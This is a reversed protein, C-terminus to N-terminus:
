WEGRKVIQRKLNMVGRAIQDAEERTADPTFVLTGDTITRTFLPTALWRQQGNTEGFQTFVAYHRGRNATSYQELLKTGSDDFRVKLAFGGIADVVIANTVYREDLFPSKEVNVLVPMQRYVPVQASRGTSDANVEQHFRLTAVLGKAKPDSSQCGCWLLLSVSGAAFCLKFWISHTWM